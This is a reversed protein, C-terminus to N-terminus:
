KSGGSPVDLTNSRFCGFFNYMPRERPGTWPSILVSRRIRLDRRMGAEAGRAAWSVSSGSSVSHRGPWLLSFSFSFSHSYVNCVIEQFPGETPLAEAGSPGLGLRGARRIDEAGARGWYAGLRQMEVEVEEEAVAEVVLM